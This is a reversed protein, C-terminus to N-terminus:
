TKIYITLLQKPQESNHEKMKYDARISRRISRLPALKRRANGNYCLTPSSMLHHTLPRTDTNNNCPPRRLSLTFVALAGRDDM